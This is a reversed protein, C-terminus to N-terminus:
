ILKKINLEVKEVEKLMLHFHNNPKNMFSITEMEAELNIFKKELTEDIQDLANLNAHLNAMLDHYDIQGTKFMAIADLMKSKIRERHEDM